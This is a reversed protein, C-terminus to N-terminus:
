TLGLQGMSEELYKGGRQEQGISVKPKVNGHFDSGATVFLGYRKAMSVFERCQGDTHSPHYAEIGWFGYDELKPLLKNFTSVRMLGPHALVAKGGADKILDVASKVDIKELRVYCPAKDSLYRTFAEKSSSAYGKKVLVSAFHPRGLIDGKCAYEVEDMSIDVGAKKLKGLMLKARQYRSKATKEIHNLLPKNQWDILLGLVHVEGYFKAALEIGAYVNMGKSKDGSVDKYGRCEDHDTIAIGGLGKEKAIKIVEQPTYDGDSYTTHVHLDFKM